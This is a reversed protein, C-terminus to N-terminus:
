TSGSLGFDFNNVGRKKRWLLDSISIGFDSITLKTEEKPPYVRSARNKVSVRVYGTKM